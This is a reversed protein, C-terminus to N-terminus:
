ETLKCDTSQYISKWIENPNGINNKFKLNKLFRTKRKQDCQKGEKSVNGM